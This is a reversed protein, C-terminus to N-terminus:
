TTSSASGSPWRRRTPPMWASPRSSARSAARVRTSSGTAGMVLGKVIGLAGMAEQKGMTSWFNETPGSAPGSTAHKESRGVLRRFASLRDDELERWLEDFANASQEIWFSSATSRTFVRTKLLFLLRDLHPTGHAGQDVLARHDAEDWREIRAVILQEESATLLEEQLKAVIFDVDARMQEEAEASVAAKEPASAARWLRRGVTVQGPLADDDGGALLRCVRANGATKQLSIVVDETLALAAPRSATPFVAPTIEPEPEVEPLRAPVAENTLEDGM